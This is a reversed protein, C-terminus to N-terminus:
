TKFWCSGQMSRKWTHYGNNASRCKSRGCHACRFANKLWKKARKLASLGYDISIVRLILMSTSSLGETSGGSLSEMASVTRM